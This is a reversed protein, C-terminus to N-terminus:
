AAGWPGTIDVFILGQSSSGAAGGCKIALLKRGILEDQGDIKDLWNFASHCQQVPLLVGPLRGRLAINPEFLFKRSLVLGNNPGNPYSPM